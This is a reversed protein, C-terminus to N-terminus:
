NTLALVTSGTKFHFEKIQSHLSLQVEKTISSKLSALNMQSLTM